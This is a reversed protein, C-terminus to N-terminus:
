YLFALCQVSGPIFVPILQLLCVALLGQMVAILHWCDKIHTYWYGKKDAVSVDLQLQKIPNQPLMCNYTIAKENGRELWYSLHTCGPM